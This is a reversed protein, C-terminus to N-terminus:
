FKLSYDEFDRTLLDQSSDRQGRGRALSSDRQLFFAPKSLFHEVNESVLLFNVALLSIKLDNVSVSYLRTMQNLGVCYM